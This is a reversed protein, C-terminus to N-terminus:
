QCNSGSGRMAQSSTHDPSSVLMANRADIHHQFSFFYKKETVSVTSAVGTDYQSGPKVPACIRM